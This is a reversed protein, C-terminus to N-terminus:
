EATASNRHAVEQEVDRAIQMFATEAPSPTRDRLRIFGYETHLWPLELDLAVMRGRKAEEAVEDAGALLGVADSGIVISRVLDLTDVRISTKLQKIREPLSSAVLPYALVQELDLRPQGALPHQPRVVLYGPHRPLAETVLRDYERAVSLECIAIDIRAELVEQTLFLWDGVQVDVKLGPHRAVLRGCATGVSLVAPYPAVGVRLLGIDLGLALTIERELESANGLLGRGSDVVISGIETLQVGGPTRDFLRAGVRSELTQISRSLTPQSIHLREAAANYTGTEALVVAHRLHKLTLTM